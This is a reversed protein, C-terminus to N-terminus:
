EEWGTAKAIATSLAKAKSHSCHLFKYNVTACYKQQGRSKYFSLDYQELTDACMLAHEVRKKPNFLIGDFVRNGDKDNWQFGTEGQTWGMVNIALHENINM